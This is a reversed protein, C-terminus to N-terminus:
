RNLQKANIGFMAKMTRALHASDAFGVAHAASTVDEGSRIRGVARAIRRWLLYRRFPLGLANAFLHRYREGSLGATEAVSALRIPGIELEQDIFRLSREMADSLWPVCEPHGSGAAGKWFRLAPASAELLVVDESARIEQLLREADGSRATAEIFVLEARATPELRHVVLPDILLCHGTHLVGQEDRVGILTSARVAQAALHRHAVNTAVSGQWKAWRDGIILDGNWASSAALEPALEGNPARTM